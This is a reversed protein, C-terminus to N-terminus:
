PALLVINGTVNGSELLANAKAAELIPLREAIIPKIQGHELLSFLTRWDEKFLEVGLRHTGYGEITKGNPLLTYYGFKALLILFGSLSQPGGYHVLKGGQRLIAMGRGIYAEDMGNFVYDLGGPESQRLVQVFDQTHYDIPIAGYDALTRHKSQSALGYM